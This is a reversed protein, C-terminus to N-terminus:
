AYKFELQSIMKLKGADEATIPKGFGTVISKGCQPCEYLDGLWYTSNFGDVEPDKVIFDNQKCRMTVACKRCIPQM